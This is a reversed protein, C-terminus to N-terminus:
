TFILRRYEKPKFLFMSQDSAFNMGFSFHLFRWLIQLYQLSEVQFSM